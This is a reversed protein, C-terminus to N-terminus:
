RTKGPRLAGVIREIASTITQERREDMADVAGTLKEVGSTLGDIKPALLQVLAKWEDADKRERADAQLHLRGLVIVAILAAALLGEPGIVRKFLEAMFQGLLEDM